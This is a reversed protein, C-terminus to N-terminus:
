KRIKTVKKNVLTELLTTLSSLVSTNKNISEYGTKGLQELKQETSKIRRGYMKHLFMIYGSLAILIGWQGYKELLEGM